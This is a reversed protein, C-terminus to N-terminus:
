SVLFTFVLFLLSSVLCLFVINRLSFKIGSYIYLWGLRTNKEKDMYSILVNGRTILMFIQLSEPLGLM